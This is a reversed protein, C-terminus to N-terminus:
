SPSTYLLCGGRLDGPTGGRPGGPAEDASKAPPKPSEVIPTGGPPDQPPTDTGALPQSTQTSDSM